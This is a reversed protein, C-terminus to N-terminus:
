QRGRRKPRNCVDSRVVRRRRVQEVGPPTTPFAWRRSNPGAAGTASSAVLGGGLGTVRKEEKLNIKKNETFEMRVFKSSADPHIKIEGHRNGPNRPM